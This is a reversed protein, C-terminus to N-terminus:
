SPLALIGRTLINFSYDEMRGVSEKIYVKVFEVSYYVGKYCGIISAVMFRINWSRYRDENTVGISAGISYRLWRGEM